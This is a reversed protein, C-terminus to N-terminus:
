LKAIESKFPPKESIKCYKDLIELARNRAGCWAAHHSHILIKDKLEKQNFNSEAWEKFEKSTKNM